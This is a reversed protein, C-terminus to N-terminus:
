ARKDADSAAVHLIFFLYEKWGHKLAGATVRVEAHMDPDLTGGSVDNVLHAGVGVAAAAVESYFTDM